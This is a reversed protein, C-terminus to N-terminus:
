KHLKLLVYIYNVLLEYKSDSDNQNELSNNSYDINCTEIVTNDTIPMSYSETQTVIIEHSYSNFLMSGGNEVADYFSEEDDDTINTYHLANTDENDIEDLLNSDISKLNKSPLSNKSLFKNFKNEADKNPENTSCSNFLSLVQQLDKNTHLSSIPDCNVKAIQLCVITHKITEILSKTSLLISEIKQKEELLTPAM